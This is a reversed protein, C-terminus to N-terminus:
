CCRRRSQTSTSNAKVKNSTSSNSNVIENGCFECYKQNIDSLKGGCNPCNM